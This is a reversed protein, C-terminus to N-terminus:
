APAREPPAVKDQQQCHGLNCAGQTARTGQTRGDRDRPVGAHRAPHLHLTAWLDPRQGARVLCPPQQPQQLLLRQLRTAVLVGQQLPKEGVVAGLFSALFTLPPVAPDHTPSAGRGTGM